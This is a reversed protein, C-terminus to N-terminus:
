ACCWPHVQHVLQSTIRSHFNLGELPLWVSKEQRAPAARPASGTFGKLNAVKLFMGALRAIRANLNELNQMQTPKAWVENVLSM